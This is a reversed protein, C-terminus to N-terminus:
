TESEEHIFVNQMDDDFYILHSAEEAIWVVTGWAIHEAFKKYSAWNKFATVYLKGKDIAADEGHFSYLM